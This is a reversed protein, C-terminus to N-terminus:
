GKVSAVIGESLGGFSLSFSLLLTWLSERLPLERRTASNTRGSETSILAHGSSSVDAELKLVRDM